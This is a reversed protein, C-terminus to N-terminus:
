GPAEADPAVSPPPPVSSIFRSSRTKPPRIPLFISFTSGRGIECELEIRGQHMRVLRRTIALGLGTGARTDNPTAQRYEEFIAAQQDPAIGPGTDAVTIVAHDEALDVGIDVRGRRTFKVANSVLNGIIQRVRRPDAWAAVSRGSLHISLPRAQATVRAERVVEAALSHVDVATCDLRLEGSELASLDLIDDILSRLHEASGRLVTVNEHADDSLPGDVESLLVDAFGLIANLPTRLEHSLAALFASRDRDSELAGALDQRYAHEAATFREVLLDFASTLLGVADADRVPVPKGSPNAEETAMELIRERVYVVDENVSRAFTFAVLTAAGVLLVTLAAVATLLSSTAFPREPARVFTLLSLHELPPGLTSTHYRTRGLRTAREGEGAVLLDVVVRAPPGGLSGDVIVRGSQDVLLIEAGSRRAAREIVLPRDEHATARIREGLATSLVKARLAAAADSQTKLQSLGVLAIVAGIAVGLALVLAPTWLLFGGRGPARDAAPAGTGGKTPRMALWRREM